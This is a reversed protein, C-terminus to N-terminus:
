YVKDTWYLSLQIPAGQETKGLFDYYQGKQFNVEQLAQARKIMQKLLRKM